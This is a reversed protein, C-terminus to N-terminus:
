ACTVRWLCVRYVGACLREGLMEQACIVFKAKMQAVERLAAELQRVRAALAESRTKEQRLQADLSLPSTLGEGQRDDDAGVM